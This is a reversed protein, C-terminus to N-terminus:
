YVYGCFNRLLLLRVRPARSFYYVQRPGFRELIRSGRSFSTICTNHPLLSDRRVRCRSRGLADYWLSNHPPSQSRVWPWLDSTISIVSRLSLRVMTSFPLPSDSGENPAGIGYVPRSASSREQVSRWGAGYPSRSQFVSKSICALYGPVWNSPWIPTCLTRTSARYRCALFSPSVFM